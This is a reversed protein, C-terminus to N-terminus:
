QKGWGYNDKLDKFVEEIGFRVGYSEIIEQVSLDLNTSMLPVWTGDEELVLVILVPQWHSLESM